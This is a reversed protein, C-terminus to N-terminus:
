ATSKGHETEPQLGSTDLTGAAVAAAQKAERDKCQLWLGPVADAYNRAVVAVEEGGVTTYFETDGDLNVRSGVTYSAM